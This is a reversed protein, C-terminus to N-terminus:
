KNMRRLKEALPPIIEHMDGQISVDAVKFIPAQGDKNIAVIFKADQMGMVFQQAGAIGCCVIFNPSVTKGTQGIQREYSLWGEDVAARSGGLCAGIMRAVEESQPLNKGDELGRGLAFIVEAETLDLEEPDIKRYGTVRTRMSEAPIEVHIKEVATDRGMVPRGIGLVGPKVTAMQPSAGPCIYSAYARGGYTPRSLRLQRGEMELVTCDSVLSTGLRTALRPALDRGLNTASMLFFAPEVATAFDALAKTYGDTTYHELLPHELVYVKDAGYPGAAKCLHTVEKGMVIGSVSLDTRDTLRRAESLVELAPESINKGDHELLVWFENKLYCEGLM